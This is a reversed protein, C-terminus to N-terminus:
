LAKARHWASLWSLISHLILLQHSPYRLPTLFPRDSSTVNSRLSSPHFPALRVFLQFFFTGPLSSQLHLPGSSQLHLPGSTPVPKALQLFLSSAPVAQAPHVLNLIHHSPNAGQLRWKTGNGPITQLFPSNPPQSQCRPLPTLPGSLDPVQRM